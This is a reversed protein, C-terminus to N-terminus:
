HGVELAVEVPTHGRPSFTNTVSQFRAFSRRVMSPLQMWTGEEKDLLYAWEQSAPRNTYGGTLIAHTENVNAFCHSFLEMPLEPGEIFAADAESYEETSRLWDEGYGPGLFM